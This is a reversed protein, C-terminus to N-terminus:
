HKLSLASETLRLLSMSVVVPAIVPLLADVLFQPALPLILLRPMNLLVFYFLVLGLATIVAGNKGPTTAGAFHGIVAVMFLELPLRVISTAFVAVMFVQSWVGYEAPPLRNLYILVITPMQSAVVGGLLLMLLESQRWVAGAIKSLLIERPTYPTALLLPLTANEIEAVMSRAADTTVLYVAKAYYVLAAPLVGVSVIVMPLIITFLFPLPVTLLVLVLQPLYWQLISEFQPTMVRWYVGLHRRVIPHSRRAWPPFNMDIEHRATIMQRILTARAASTQM